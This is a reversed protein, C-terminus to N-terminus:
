ILYRSRFDEGRWWVPALGNSGKRVQLLLMADAALRKEEAARTYLEPQKLTSWGFVAKLQRATARNEAAIVAGAKRLGRATRRTM